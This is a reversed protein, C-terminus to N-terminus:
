DVRFLSVMKTNRRLLVESGVFITRMTLVVALLPRARCM